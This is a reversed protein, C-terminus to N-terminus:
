ALVQEVEERVRREIPKKFMMAMMPVDVTVKVDAAGVELLGSIRTGMVAFRFNLINGVWEEHIDTAQGQYAERISEAKAKLRRLAEEQGLQQPVSLSIRPM